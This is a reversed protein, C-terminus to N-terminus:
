GDNYNGGATQSGPLGTPFRKKAALYKKKFIPMIERSVLLSYVYLYRKTDIM